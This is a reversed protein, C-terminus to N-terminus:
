YQDTKVWADGGSGILDNAVEEILDSPYIGKFKEYLEDQPDYPGGFIYQYGGESSDYPVGDAPDKYNAHFWDAMKAQRPDSYQKKDDDGNM